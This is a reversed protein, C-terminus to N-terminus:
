KGGASNPLSGRSGLGSLGAAAGNYYFVLQPGGAGYRWVELSPYYTGYASVTVRGGSEAIRLRTYIPDSPAGPWGHYGSYAGCATEIVGGSSAGACTTLEGMRPFLSFYGLGSEAALATVTGDSLVFQRVRFTGADAAPGRNDGTGCIVNCSIATPIFNEICYRVGSGGPDHCLGTPDTRGAPNSGAYTYRNLTEPAIQNGTVPDSSLLRGLGPDYWRARLYILGSADSLEGAFGLLSAGSAGVGAAGYASYDFAGTISGGGSVTLRV